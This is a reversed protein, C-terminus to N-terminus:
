VTLQKHGVVKKSCRSRPNGPTSPSTQRRRLPFSTQVWAGAAVRALRICLSPRSIRRRPGQPKRTPEQPLLTRTDAGPSGARSRALGICLLDASADVGDVPARRNEEGGSRSAQIRPTLATLRPAMHCAWPHTRAHDADEPQFSVPAGRSAGCTLGDLARRVKRRGKGVCPVYICLASYYIVTRRRATCRKSRTWAIYRTSDRALLDKWHDTRPYGKESHARLTGNCEQRFLIAPRPHWNDGGL